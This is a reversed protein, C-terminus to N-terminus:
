NIVLMSDGYVELSSIKMEVVMQLGIILVQYEAVNNSCLVNLCLSYPLVHRESSVFVLSAGAEDIGASGDFFMMWAPFVEAFLVQEYPLDDSVEWDTLIRHDALFDAVAQGKVVKALTYIIEYQNLLLTWEALHGTLVPKSM